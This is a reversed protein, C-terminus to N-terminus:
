WDSPWREKILKVVVFSYSLEFVLVKYEPPKERLAVPVVRRSDQVLSEVRQWWYSLMGMLEQLICRAKYM